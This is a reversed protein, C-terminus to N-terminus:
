YTTTKGVFQGGLGGKYRDVRRIADDLIMFFFTITVRFLILMSLGVVTGGTPHANQPCFVRAKWHGGLRFVM